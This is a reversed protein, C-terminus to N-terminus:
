ILPRVTEYLRSYVSMKRSYIESETSGPTYAKGYRVCADKAHHLDKYIGMAVAALMYTGMAGVEDADVPVVTRGTVDAKIQLWM